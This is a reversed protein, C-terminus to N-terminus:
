KWLKEVNARKLIQKFAPFNLPRETAQWRDKTDIIFTHEENMCVELRLDTRRSFPLIKFSLNDLVLTTSDPPRVALVMHWVGSYRDHVVCLGMTKPAIGLDKLTYYKSIAYDECDGGGQALFEGRTAWHDESAYQYADHIPVIANLYHNVKELTVHLAKESAVENMFREYDKLIPQALPAKQAALFSPSLVFPRGWAFM